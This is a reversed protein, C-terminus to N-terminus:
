GVMNLDIGMALMILIILGAIIRYYGFVRFGHRTLFSIFGKIAVMAVFFAVVNGILLLKLNEANISHYTKLLEFLSAALMTPV